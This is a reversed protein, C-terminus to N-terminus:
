RTETDPSKRRATGPGLAKRFCVVREVARFGYARHAAQSPRNELLADSCLERFGRARAWREVEGVLARGVGERRAKPTVWLGELFPVPSEECGNAYRRLSAEAFGLPAGDRWALVAFADRRLFQREVELRHEEAPGPWLRRRLAV